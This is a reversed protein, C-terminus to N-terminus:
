RAGVGDLAYSIAPAIIQASVVVLLFVLLADLLRAFRDRGPRLGGGNDFVRLGAIAARHVPRKIFGYNIRSRRM